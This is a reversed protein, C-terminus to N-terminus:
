AGRTGALTFFLDAVTADATSPATLRIEDGAAFSVSTADTTFTAVGGTSVSIDGIDTGNKAIDIVFVSTPNVLVKFESGAWDDPFTVARTFIFRLLPQSSIPPGGVYYGGIDFPAANSNAVLSIGGASGDHIFTAVEGAVM